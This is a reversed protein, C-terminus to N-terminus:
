SVELTALCVLQHLTQPVNCAIAKSRALLAFVLQRSTTAQFVPSVSPPIQVKACKVVLIVTQSSMALQTSLPWCMASLINKSLLIAIVQMLANNVTSPALFVLATTTSSDLLATSVNSLTLPM